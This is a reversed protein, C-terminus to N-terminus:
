NLQGGSFLLHQKFVEFGDMSRVDLKLTKVYLVMSQNNPHIAYKLPRPGEFVIDKQMYAVSLAGLTLREAIDHKYRSHLSYLCM